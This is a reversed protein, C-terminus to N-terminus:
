PVFLRNVIQTFPDANAGYVISGGLAGTTLLLLFGLVAFPVLIYGLLRLNGFRVISTWVSGYRSARLRDGWFWDVLVIIYIVAIVGFVFVTADAFNEHVDIIVRQARYLPKGFDGTMLALFAGGLGAFLLTAKIYLWERADTFRRFRLMEFLAYVSLLAVPFHVFIPHINM